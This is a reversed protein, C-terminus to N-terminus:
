ELGLVLECAVLGSQDFASVAGEEHTEGVLASTSDQVHIPFGLHDGDKDM